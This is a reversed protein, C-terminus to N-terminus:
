WSGFEWLQETFILEMRIRCCAYSALGQNTVVLRLRHMDKIDTTGAVHCDDCHCATNSKPLACKEQIEECKLLIGPM